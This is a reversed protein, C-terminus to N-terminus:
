VPELYEVLLQVTQQGRWENIDLRYALRVRQVGADPWRRPDINFAIADLTNNPSRPDALVLKLHKEGVLRQQVIRFEGDFLPEPFQQGWPGGERLAQAFDLTLADGALEGDSWLVATLAAEDLQERVVQDFAASFEEFHRRELSMGAAMAHGGFKSLLGPNRAAVADLADRIHLGPISRASGKIMPGADGHVDADAFAIVPRHYRDKVRSALIGIVGQHWEPRYLCLGWPMTASGTPSADTLHLSELASMAERQMDAEISRRDRNLEDLQQAIERAMVMDNTLLCQIGLTMDDLRGAANLRPGVAFGLDSAVLRDPSRKAVEILALIGPRCRGARIRRLGQAVLVRNNQDLAVVDAVTGLAVLDLFDALNPAAIGKREFWNRNRLETRLATLVYFIVGVGALNKSPFECGPQNPNVICAAEPIQQGPLHHDTVLVRIGVANAAAVGDYSSIGNDVTIILDPKMTAAVAVIEPTLGYGYEFRNPVLFDIHRAGLARLALVALATSTAGDADFDGIILISKQQEICDAILTAAAPLGKFTDPTSLRGLEVALQDDGFVGRAAYINALASPISPSFQFAESATPRRRIEKQM